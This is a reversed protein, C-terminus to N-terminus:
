NREGWFVPVPVIEAAEPSGDASRQKEAHDLAVRLRGALTQKGIAEYTRMGGVPHMRFSQKEFLVELVFTVTVPQLGLGDWRVAELSIQEPLKDAGTAKRTISRGLSDSDVQRSETTTDGSEWTLNRLALVLPACQGPFTVRLDQILEGTTSTKGGAWALMKQWATSVSLPMTITDERTLFLRISEDGIWIQRKVIPSEIDPYAQSLAPSGQGFFVELEAGAFAGRRRGLWPSYAWDALDELRDVKYRHSPEREAFLLAYDRLRIGDIGPGLTEVKVNVPQQQAEKLEKTLDRVMELSNSLDFESM